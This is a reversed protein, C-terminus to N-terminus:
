FVVLLVKTILFMTKKRWKRLCQDFFPWFDWDFNQFFADVTANPTKIQNWRESGIKGCLVLAHCDASKRSVEFFTIKEKFFVFFHRFISFGMCFVPFLADMTMSSSELRIWHEMRIDECILLTHRVDCAGFILFFSTKKIFVVCFKGFIIGLFCWLDLCFRCIKRKKGWFNTLVNNTWYGM